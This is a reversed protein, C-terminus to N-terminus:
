EFQYSNCNIHHDMLWGQFRLVISKDCIDILDQIENKMNTSKRKLKHIEINLTIIEKLRTYEGYDEFEQDKFDPSMIYDRRFELQTIKDNVKNLIIQKEILINNIM